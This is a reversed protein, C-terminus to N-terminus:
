RIQVCIWTFSISLLFNFDLQTNFTFSTHKFFMFSITTCYPHFCYSRFNLGSVTLSIFFVLMNQKSCAEILFFFSLFFFLTQLKLVNCINCINESAAVSSSDGLSFPLTSDIRRTVVSKILVRLVDHSIWFDCEVWQFMLFVCVNLYVCM